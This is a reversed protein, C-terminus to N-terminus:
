KNSTEKQTIHTCQACTNESNEWESELIKMRFPKRYERNWKQSWYIKWLFTIDNVEKEFLMMQSSRREFRIIILIIIILACQGPMSKDVIRVTKDKTPLETLEMMKKQIKYKIYLILIFIGRNKYLEVM